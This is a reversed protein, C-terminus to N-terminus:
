SYIRVLGGKTTGIHLIHWDWRYLMLFLAEIDRHLRYPVQCVSFGHTVWWYLTYSPWDDYSLSPINMTQTVKDNPRSMQIDVAACTQHTQHTWPSCWQLNHIALCRLDHYAISWCALILFSSFALLLDRYRWLYWFGWLWTWDLINTPNLEYLPVFHFFNREAEGEQFFNITRNAFLISQLSIAVVVKYMMITGAQRNYSTDDLSRYRETEPQSDHITCVKITQCRIESPIVRLCMDRGQVHERGNIMCLGYPKM